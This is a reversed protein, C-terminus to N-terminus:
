TGASAVTRFWDPESLDVFCQCCGSSLLTCLTCVTHTHTHYATEAQAPSVVTALGKHANPCNAAKSSDTAETGTVADAFGGAEEIALTSTLGPGACRHQLRQCAAPSWLLKLLLVLAECLHYMDRRLM